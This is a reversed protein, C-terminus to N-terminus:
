SILHPLIARLDHERVVVDAAEAVEEDEPMFAIALGVISMVTIDNRGDGVFATEELSVGFHEVIQRIAERKEGWAVKNEVVGTLVGNRHDLRNTLVYDIGLRDAVDNAMVDLGGSLIAVDLGAAKLADITERAGPTLETNRVVREIADMPQGAWLEADLRAWTDYDIEGAFFQDYYRRGEVTTGFEQHLRWWISSHTTLTGDSDFVVLRIAM